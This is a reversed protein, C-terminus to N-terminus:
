RGIGIEAQYTNPWNPSKRSMPPIQAAKADVGLAIWESLGIGLAHPKFAARWAAEKAECWRRKRENLEQQTDQIARLIAENPLGLAAPLAEILAKTKILDGALLGKLRRLGKPINSYGTRRVLDAQSLRQDQCQEIILRALAFPETQQDQAM